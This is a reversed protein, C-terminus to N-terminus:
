LIEIVEPQDDVVEVEDPELSIKAKTRKTDRSSQDPQNDWPRKSPVRAPPLEATQERTNRVMAMILPPVRNGFRAELSPVLFEMDRGLVNGRSIIKELLRGLQQDEVWETASPWGKRLSKDLWSLVEDLQRENQEQFGSLFCDITSLAEKFTSHSYERRPLDSIFHTLPCLLGFSPYFNPTVKRTRHAGNRLFIAFLSNKLGGMYCKEKRRRGENFYKELFMHWPTQGSLDKDNPNSGHNLLGAIINIHHQTWSSYTEMLMALPSAKGGEFYHTSRELKALVYRDVGAVLFSPRLSPGVPKRSTTVNTVTNEQSAHQSNNRLSHSAAVEHDDFVKDFADRLPCVNDVVTDQEVDAVTDLIMIAADEDEELADNAYRLCENWLDKINNINDLTTAAPLLCRLQFAFAKLTSMNVKYGPETKDELYDQMPRTLLFDRVTRHLFEVRNRKFGLLGGCRANIRLRCPKLLGTPLNSLRLAPELQRELAYNSDQQEYEAAYYTMLHFPEKANIAMQLTRGMYPHYYPDIIDLMHKFFPELDTPLVELRRQLDEITDGNVLGHRLSRTVLFVWLFVGQARETINSILTESQEDSVCIDKWKPIEELRSKTFNQIDRFTLDHICLKTSPDSAFADEFVNWPRSSVCCKLNASSSLEKLLQCLEFHDGDYEDLGDIFFCCKVPMAPHHALSRLGEHLEHTSWQIDSPLRTPKTNAWRDPFINPGLGPCCCLIDYLLEQLLGKLSKQIATGTGWFYHAAIVVEKSGAWEELAKRTQDHSAIFKMLTSKGAGAKGFVWFTGNGFKLWTNFESHAESPDQGSQATYSQHRPFIWEFTSRHAAPINEHRYSRSTFNLSRLLAQERAAVALDKETLTLDSLLEELCSVDKPYLTKNTKGHKRARGQTPIDPPSEDLGTLEMQPLSQIRELLAELRESLEDFRATQEARLRFSQDRLGDLFRMM